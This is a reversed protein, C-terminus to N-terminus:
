EPNFIQSFIRDDAQICKKKLQKFQQALKRGEPTLSTGDRRDSRVIPKGFHTETSKIKSWVSKYSMKLEKATQNISGTRDVSELIALRGSGMIIDGAENVLIQSSLLKVM